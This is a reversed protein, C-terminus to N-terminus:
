PVRACVWADVRTTGARRLAHAAAQLTAGTTMVDDVLVAHDAVPAVCEFAGRVNRRRTTADLSSQAVTAVHRRLAFGWPLGTGRALPRVLEAAQDFGRGRLRSAHLPVPVLLPKEAPGAGLSRRMLQALLRGAALDGRFKFRRLLLDVPWEYRFAARVSALPGREGQCAGCRLGLNGDTLPLACQICAIDLWPLASHCAECLDLTGQGPEDCLLCRSPLLWAQARTLGTRLPQLFAPQSEMPVHHAALGPSWSRGKARALGGGYGSTNDPFVAHWSAM